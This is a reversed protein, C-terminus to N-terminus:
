QPGTAYPVEMLRCFIFRTVKIAIAQHKTSAEQPPPASACDEADLEWGEKDVELLTDLLEAEMDELEVLEFLSILETPILRLELLRELELALLIELELLLLM